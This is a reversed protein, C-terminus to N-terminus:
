RYTTPVIMMVNSDRIVYRGDPSYLSKYDYTLLGTEKSNLIMNDENIEQVICKYAISTSWTRIVIIEDGVELPHYEYKTIQQKERHCISGSEDQVLDFRLDMSESDLIMTSYEGESFLVFCDNSVEKAVEWKSGDIEQISDGEKLKVNVKVDKVVPVIKLYM